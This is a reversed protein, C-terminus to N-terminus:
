YCRKITPAIQLEVQLLSVIKYFPHAGPGPLRWPDIPNPTAFPNPFVPQDIRSAAGARMRHLPVQVAMSNATGRLSVKTAGITWPHLRVWPPQTAQEDEQHQNANGPTLCLCAVALPLGLITFLYGSVLLADSGFDVSDAARQLLAALSTQRLRAESLAAAAAQALESREVFHRHPKDALCCLRRPNSPESLQPLCRCPMRLFCARVTSACSADCSGRSQRRYSQM